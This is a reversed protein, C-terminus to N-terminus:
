APDRDIQVIRFDNAHKRSQMDPRQRPLDRTDARSQVETSIRRILQDSGGANHVVNRQKGAVAHEEARLQHREGRSTM